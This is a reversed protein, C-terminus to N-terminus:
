TTAARSPPSSPSPTTPRAFVTFPGEGQLDDVLEAATLAGALQTFSGAAIATAVLDDKPPLLITDIVHIVGNSAEIDATTVSADNVMAGSDLDFLVPSGNLTASV